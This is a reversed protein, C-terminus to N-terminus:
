LRGSELLELLPAAAKRKPKWCLGCRACTIPTVGNEYPCVLNGRADKKVITRPRERFVLDTKRRPWDDDDSSLYCTRIGKRRPPFPLDRDWSFWMEFNPERGLEVLLPLLEPVRWSRTYAFFQTGRSRRVIELWKRTYEADFFDGAVHVRVLLVTLRRIEAIMAPAFEPSQALELNRRHAERVPESKFRYRTAYCLRRCLASSGPCTTIAPISWGFVWTGLKRNGRTIM